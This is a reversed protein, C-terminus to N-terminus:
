LERVQFYIRCSRSLIRPIRQVILHPDYHPERFKIVSSSIIGAKSKYSRVADIAKFIVEPVNTAITPLFKETGSAKCHEYMIALTEENPYVSFLKGGAGYIQLDIFSPALIHDHSIIHCDDPLLVMPLVVIIKEDETIVAHHPLFTEGNFVLDATYIQQM